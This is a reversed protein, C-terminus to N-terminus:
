VILKTHGLIYWSMLVTLMKHTMLSHWNIIFILFPNCSVTNEYKIELKMFFINNLMKNNSILNIKNNFIIKDTSKFIIFLM